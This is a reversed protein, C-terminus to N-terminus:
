ARCRQADAHVAEQLVYPIARTPVVGRTPPTRTHRTRTRHVIELGAAIGYGYAHHVPIDRTHPQAGTNSKLRLFEGRGGVASSRWRRQM